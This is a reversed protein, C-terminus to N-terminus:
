KDRAHSTELAEGEILKAADQRKLKETAHKGNEIAFSVLRGIAATRALGTLGRLYPPDNDEPILKEGDAGSLELSSVPRGHARDLVSNAAAARTSPAVRPNNMLTILTQLAAESNEQALERIKPNQRPRGGPNGSQGKKFTM